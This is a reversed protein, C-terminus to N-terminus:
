KKPGYDPLKEAIDKLGGINNEALIDALGIVVCLMGSDYDIKIGSERLIDAGRAESVMLLKKGDFGRLGSIKFQQGM